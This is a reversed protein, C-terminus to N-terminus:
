KGSEFLEKQQIMLTEMTKIIPTGFLNDTRFNDSIAVESFEISRFSLADPDIPVGLVEGHEDQGYVKGSEINNTEVFSVIGDYLDKKLSKSSVKFRLSHSESGVHKGLAGVLNYSATPISFDFHNYHRMAKLAQAFEHKPALNQVLMKAKRLDEQVEESLEESLSKLRARNAYEKPFLSRFMGAGGSGRHQSFLGRGSDHILFFIFEQRGTPSESIDQVTATLKGDKFESTIFSGQDTNILVLGATRRDKQALAIFRDGYRTTLKISNNKKPYLDKFFDGVSYNAAVEFQIGNIYVKAMFAIEVLHIIHFSSQRPPTLFRIWSDRNCIVM